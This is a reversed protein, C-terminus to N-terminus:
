VLHLVLEQLEPTLTKFEETKCLDLLSGFEHRYDDKIRGGTYKGSKAWVTGPFKFNGLTTQFRKRRKGLDHFLAALLISRKLEEDLHLHGVIATTGRVVDDTHVQG